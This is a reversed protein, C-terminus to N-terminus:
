AFTISKWGGSAFYAWLKKDAQNIFVPTSNAFFGTSQAPVGTPAGTTTSVPLFVFGQIAANGLDSATALKIDTPQGSNPNQIVLGTSSGAVFSIAGEATVVMRGSGTKYLTQNGAGTFLITQESSNAGPLILPAEAQATDGGSFTALKTMTGGVMASVDVAAREAANTAVVWRSTTQTADKMTGSANELRNKDITGFGAAATGSTDHATVTAVSATNTGADSLDIEVLQGTTTTFPAPAAKTQKLAINTEDTARSAGLEQMATEVVTGTFYNGVDQIGVLSAGGSGDQAALNAKLVVDTQLVHQLDPQSFMGGNANVGILTAGSTVTTDALQALTVFGSTGGQELWRWGTIGAVAVVGAGVSASSISLRWLSNDATVTVETGPNLHSADLTGLEATTAVAISSGLQIVPPAPTSM